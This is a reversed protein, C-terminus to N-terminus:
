GDDKFVYGNKNPINSTPVSTATKLVLTIMHVATPLTIMHVAAPLTVMHIATPLTKMNVAAPLATKHM